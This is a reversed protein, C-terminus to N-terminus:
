ELGVVQRLIPLNASPNDEVVSRAFGGDLRPDYLGMCYNRLFRILSQSSFRFAIACVAANIIQTGLVPTMTLLGKKILNPVVSVYGRAVMNLAAMRVDRYCLDMAINKRDNTHRAITTRYLISIHNLKADYTQGWTSGFYNIKSNENAFDFSSWLQPCTASLAILPRDRILQTLALALTKRDDPPMLDVKMAGLVKKRLEPIFACYSLLKAMMAPKANRIIRDGLGARIWFEIFETSHRDYMAPGIRRTLELDIAVRWLKNVRRLRPLEANPLAAVLDTIIINLPTPLHQRRIIDFTEAM